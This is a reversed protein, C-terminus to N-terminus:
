KKEEPVYEVSINPVCLKETKVAECMYGIGCDSDQQCKRACKNRGPNQYTFDQFYCIESSACNFDSVCFDLNYKPAEINFSELVKKTFKADVFYRDYRQYSWFPVRKLNEVVWAQEVPATLFGREDYDVVKWTENQRELKHLIQLEGFGSVLVPRSDKEKIFGCDMSSLVIKEKDSINREWLIVAACVPKTNEIYVGLEKEKGFKEIALSIENDATYKEYNTNLLFLNIKFIYLLFVFFFVVVLLLKRNTKFNM